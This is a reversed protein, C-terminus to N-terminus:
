IQFPTVTSIAKAIAQLADVIEAQRDEIAKLESQTALPSCSSSVAEEIKSTLDLTDIVDEVYTTFDIDSLADEIEDSFDYDHVVSEVNSDIIDGFDYNDIEDTAMQRIQDESHSVEEAIQRVSHNDITDIRETVDQCIGELVTSIFTNVLKTIKESMIHTAEHTIGFSPLQIKPQTAM